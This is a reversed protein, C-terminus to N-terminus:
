NPNVPSVIEDKRSIGKIMVTTAQIEELSQRTIQELLESDIELIQWASRSFMSVFENGSRGLNFAHCIIDAIHIASVLLQDNHAQVPDHHHAIATVFSVPFNWKQALIQGAAQHDSGFWSAEKELDSVSEGDDYFRVYKEPDMKLLLLRGIDHMVGCVFAENRADNTATHLLHKAFVGVSFSHMWFDDMSLVASETKLSSVVSTTLLLQQLTDVGLMIVAEEVSTIQRAFGYFPSNVLRLTRAAFAQDTAVLLAIEHSGVDEQTMLATLQHVVAPTSPLNLHQSVAQSIDSM